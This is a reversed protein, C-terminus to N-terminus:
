WDFSRSFLLILGNKRKLTEFDRVQNNQDSVTLPHPIPTGIAPGKDLVDLNAASAGHLPLILALVVFAASLLRGFAFRNSLL